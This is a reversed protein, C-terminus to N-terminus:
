YRFDTFHIIALPKTLNYSFFWEEWEHLTLGDNNALLEPNIDIYSDEKKVKPIAILGSHFELKQIGVKNIRLFEKQKSKYPKDTWYRVSLEAKGSQIKNIRNQWLDYNARITHIKERALIKEVFGTKEGAKPHNVPFQRSIMLVYTKM